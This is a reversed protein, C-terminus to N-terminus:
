EKSIAGGGHSQSIIHPPNGAFSIVGGGNAQADISSLAQLKIVGGGHAQAHVTEAPIARVNIAGGGHAQLNLMPQKPFDGEAKLAGGGHAQIDEIRPSVIEVKFEGSNVCWAKCPSIDLSKGNLHIDAKSLDGKVVTVRQVAGHRLVVAAGGHTSIGTFAPFTLDTGALAASAFLLSAAAASAFRIM